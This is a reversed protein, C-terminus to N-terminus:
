VVHHYWDECDAEKGDWNVKCDKAWESEIFQHIFWWVCGLGDNTVWFDLLDKWRQTPDVEAGRMEVMVSMAADAQLLVFGHLQDGLQWAVLPVVEM